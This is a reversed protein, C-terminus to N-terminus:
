SEAEHNQADEQLLSIFQYFKDLILGIGYCIFSYVFFPVVNGFYTNIIDSTILETTEKMYDIYQYTDILRFFSILLLLVAVIYFFLSSKCIKLKSVESTDIIIMIISFFMLKQFISQLYFYIFTYYLGYYFCFHHFPLCAIKLPYHVCTRTLELRMKQVLYIM